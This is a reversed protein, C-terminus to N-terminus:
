IVKQDILLENISSFKFNTFLYNLKIKTSNLGYYFKFKKVPKLKLRPQEFDIERPHIYFLVTENKKIQKTLLYKLLSMPCLRLYGGGTYVISQGLLKEKSIPIEFISNNKPTQLYGWNKLETKIGGHSHAFPFFSSDYKFGEEFLIDLAWPNEKVISFGPARFGIVERGVLDEIIIKSKRLDYRFEKETMNYILGHSYSHSALEHGNQAILSILKPYKEAVWGLSFFTAKIKYETFLELLINTNREIRSEMSDWKSVPYEYNDGLIHYWDELDVTFILKSTGM